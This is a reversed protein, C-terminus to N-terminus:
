TTSVCRFASFTVSVVTGHCPVEQRREAETWTWSEAPSISCSVEEPPPPPSHEGGGGGGVAALAQQAINALSQQDGSALDTSSLNFNKLDLFRQINNDSDFLQPIDHSPGLQTASLVACGVSSLVALRLVVRRHRLLWPGFRHLLRSSSGRSRTLTSFHHVMDFTHPHSHRPPTDGPSPAAASCQVTRTRM